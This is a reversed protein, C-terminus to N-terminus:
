EVHRQPYLSVACKIGEYSFSKNVEHKPHGVYSWSEWTDSDVAIWKAFKDDFRSNRIELLILLRLNTFVKM